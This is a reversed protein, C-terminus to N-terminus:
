RLVWLLIILYFLTTAATEIAVYQKRAVVFAPSGAGNTVPLVQELRHEMRSILAGTVPMLAVLVLKVILRPSFPYGLLLWAIGSLGLLVMGAAILRTLTQAIRMFTPFFVPDNRYKFLLALKATAAGVALALGVLHITLLASTPSIPANM